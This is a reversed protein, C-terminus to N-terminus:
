PSLLMAEEITTSLADRYGHPTFTLGILAVTLCVGALAPLWRDFLDHAGRPLTAKRMPLDIPM